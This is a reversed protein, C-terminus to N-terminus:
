MVFCRSSSVFEGLWIGERYRYCRWGYVDVVDEFFDVWGEMGYWLFFM